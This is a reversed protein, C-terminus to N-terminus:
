RLLALISDKFIIGMLGIGILVLLSIIGIIKWDRKKQTISSPKSSDQKPAEPVESSESHSPVSTMSTVGATITEAAEQVEKPNYGAKIFSDIAVELSYGREIANKIGAALEEKM